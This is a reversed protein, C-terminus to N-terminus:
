NPLTSVSFARYLAAGGIVLLAKIYTGIVTGPKERQRLEPLFWAATDPDHPSRTVLTLFDGFLTFFCCHRSVGALMAVLKCKTTKGAWL